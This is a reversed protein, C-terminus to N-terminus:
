ELKTIRGKRWGNPINDNKDIMKCESDNTIWIKGYRHNNNGFMKKTSKSMKQKSEESHKRGVWNHNNNELYTKLGKKVCEVFKEYYEPDNKLKDLHKRSANLALKRSFNPDSKKKLLLAKRAVEWSGKGGIRLNYTNTEALFEETVLEAEKAYMDEKNDFIFLVERSFNDLGHKSQAKKLYKGSGMYEDDLNSTIHTGIYIKNDIKNTIKYVIYHKM